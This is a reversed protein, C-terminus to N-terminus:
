PSRNPARRSTIDSVGGSGSSARVFKGQKRVCHRASRVEARGFHRLTQIQLALQVARNRLELNEAELQELLDWGKRMERGNPDTRPGTAGTGALEHVSASKKGNFLSSRAVVSM